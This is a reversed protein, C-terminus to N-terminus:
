KRLDSWKIPDDLFEQVSKIQEENLRNTDRCEKLVDKWTTLWFMNISAQALEESAGAFSDYYFVVFAYNAKLGADRMANCFNIKSGGDTALDEVLLAQAGEKFDGEIRSKKGFGKATKRVYIMPRMLGESIWAAYPIGATEGGAVVEIKEYGIEREIVEIAYQIIKRRINPYSILKRCDVYVPALRGSTHTFPTQTNISIASVELLMKAVERAIVSKCAM